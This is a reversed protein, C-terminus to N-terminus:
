RELTLMEGEVTLRYLSLYTMGLLSGDMEAQNVEAPFNSDNYPGLGLDLRVPATRVTGNATAASGSFALSAPDLGIRAADAPSLVVSSAGTDVMFDVLTGNLTLALHYHGDQGRPVRISDGTVSQGGMLDQGVDNWLGYGAVLGTGIMAWIILYRLSASLNQRMEAFAWTAVAAALLGLYVFRATTDGDM